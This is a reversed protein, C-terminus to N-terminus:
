PTRVPPFPGSTATRAAPKTFLLQVDGIYRSAFAGECSALYFEWMRCFHDDFGMARVRPLKSLFAERWHRLTAAYHPGIDEQHRLVLDTKRAAHLLAGVGPICSGPFIYRKIFDRERAAQEFFRDQVTIAQIAAVGHPRLCADCVRFFDGFHEGGVAEIMEVSVLKDCAGAMLGPLDRYDASLVRVKGEQGAERVKATAYARQEDSITTTTVTCGYRRAAHIALAGWGTGIELLHDGPRLDLKRCLRDIKEIQAEELTTAGHEFIGCSYTMTPDLFLGFFDNGLDYHAVINRKSGARTNRELWGAVGALPQLLKVLPGEVSRIAALNATVVEVLAPLDDCAWDGRIYAEGLGVSGGFAFASYFSPGLVRVTPSAPTANASANTSGTAEDVVRLGGERIKALLGVLLARGARELLSLRVGRSSRNARTRLAGAAPHQARDGLLDGAHTSGLNSATM